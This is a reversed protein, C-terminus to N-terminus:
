LQAALASGEGLNGRLLSMPVLLTGCPLWNERVEFLTAAERARHSLLLLKPMTGPCCLFPSSSCAWLVQVLKMGRKASPDRLTTTPSAKEREKCCKWEEAPQPPRLLVEFTASKGLLWIRGVALTKRRPYVLFHGGRLTRSLGRLPVACATQLFSFLGAAGVWEM